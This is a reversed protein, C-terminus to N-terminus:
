IGRSQRVAPRYVGNGRAVAAALAIINGGGGGNPAFDSLDISIAEGSRRMVPQPIHSLANKAVPRFLRLFFLRHGFLYDRVLTSSTKPEHAFFHGCTWSHNFEGPHQRRFDDVLFEGSKGPIWLAGPSVLSGAAHTASHAIPKTCVSGGGHGVDLIVVGPL